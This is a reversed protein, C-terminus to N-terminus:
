TNTEHAVGLNSGPDGPKLDLASVVLGISTLGHSHIGHLLLCTDYYWVYIELLGVFLRNFQLFQVTSTLESDLQIMLQSVLPCVM